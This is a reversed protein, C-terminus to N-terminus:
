VVSIGAEKAARGRDLPIYTSSRLFAVEKQGM